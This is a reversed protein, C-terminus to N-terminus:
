DAVEATFSVFIAVVVVVVVNITDNDNYQIVPPQMVPNTKTVGRSSSNIAILGGALLM